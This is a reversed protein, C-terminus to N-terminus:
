KSYQNEIYRQVVERNVDGVSAIFYSHSWIHGGWFKDRKLEPHNKIFLRGSGGKLAKVVDTIATKPKFSILLHVHDPMIEISEVDVENLKAIYLLLEKMESVLNANTFAPKRYKTVWILHYHLSYVYHREHVANPIRPKKKM